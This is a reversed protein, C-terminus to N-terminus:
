ANGHFMARLKKDQDSFSTGSNSATLPKAVGWSRPTMLLGSSLVATACNRFRMRRRIKRDFYVAILYLHSNFGVTFDQNVDDLEIVM